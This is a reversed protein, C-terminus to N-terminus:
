MSEGKRFSSSGRGWALRKPFLTPTGSNWAKGWLGKSSIDQREHRPCNMGAMRCVPCFGLLEETVVLSSSTPNWKRNHSAKEGAGDGQIMDAAQARSHSQPLKGPVSVRSSRGTTLARLSSLPVLQSNPMLEEHPFHLLCWKSKLIDPM